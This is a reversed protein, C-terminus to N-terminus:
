PMAETIVTDPPVHKGYGLALGAHLWSREGLVTGGAMCAGVGLHGFAGVCAHHDVVAGSNVIVGEGLVSETGVIAGAMITCGAGIIARPSVHALPHIVTLMSFGAEVLRETLLARMANNGIAVVACSAYLRLSKFNATNGLVSYSYVADLKPWRDDVFGAISVIGIVELAEAVSRGHGGAGVILVSGPM